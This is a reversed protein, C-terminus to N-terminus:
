GRDVFPLSAVNEDNEQLESKKKWVKEGFVFYEKILRSSPSKM